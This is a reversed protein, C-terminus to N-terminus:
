INYSAALHKVGVKKVLKAFNENGVLLGGNDYFQKLNTRQKHVWSSLKKKTGTPVKVHGYFQNLLL